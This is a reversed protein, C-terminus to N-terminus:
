VRVVDLGPDNSPFRLRRSDEDAYDPSPEIGARALLNGCEALIRGKPLALVLPGANEPELAAPAFPATM